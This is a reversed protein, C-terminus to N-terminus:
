FPFRPAGPTPDFRFGFLKGKPLKALGLWQDSVSARRSIHVQGGSLQAYAAPPTPFTFAVRNPQAACDSGPFRVCGDAALANPPEVALQSLARNCSGRFTFEHGATGHPRVLFGCFPLGFRAWFRPAGAIAEDMAAACAQRLFVGPPVGRMPNALYARARVALGSVNNSCAQRRAIQRSSGTTAQLLPSLGSVLAQAQVSVAGSLGFSATRAGAAGRPRLLVVIGDFASGSSARWTAAAVITRGLAPRNVLQLRVPGRGPATGRLQAIVISGPAPAPLRLTLAHAGQASGPALLAIACLLV